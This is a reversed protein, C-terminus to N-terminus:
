SPKKSEQFKLSDLFDAASDFFIEWAYWKWKWVPIVSVYEWNKWGDIKRIVVKVRNKNNNVIAVFWYFQVVKKEKIYKWRRKVSIDIMEERYEQYLWSKELIMPIHLFCLYRVYSESQDRKHNKNKWEIHKFWEPKIKVEWLAPCHIKRNNKLCAIAKNKM